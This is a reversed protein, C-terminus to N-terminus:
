PTDTGPAPFAHHVQLASAVFGHAEFFNKTDRLGPLAVADVGICNHDRAHGLLREIVAEGLGVARGEPEVYLERVYGLRRGDHLAQVEFTGYGLVVDDICGVVLRHEPRHLFQRYSPELPARVAESALWVSGGRHEALEDHLAQGLEAVRVLDGLEADRAHEM